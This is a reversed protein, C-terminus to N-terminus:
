FFPNNVSIYKKFSKKLTYYNQCTGKIVTYDYTLFYNIAKKGRFTVKNFYLFYPM